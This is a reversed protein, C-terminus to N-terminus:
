TNPFLGVPQWYRRLFDGMPTGARIGNLIESEEKTTRYM